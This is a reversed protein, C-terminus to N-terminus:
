STSLYLGLLGEAEFDAKWKLWTGVRPSYQELLPDGSNIFTELEAKTGTSLDCNDLCLVWMQVDLTSWSDRLLGALGGGPGAYCAERALKDHDAIGHEELLMAPKNITLHPIIPIMGMRLALAGLATARAINQEETRGECPSCPGIIYCIKNM